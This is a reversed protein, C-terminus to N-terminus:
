PSCFVKQSPFLKFCIHGLPMFNNEDAYSTMAMGIQRLNSACAAQLSKLHANAVSPAVLAALIMVIALVVLLELLTFANRSASRLLSLTMRSHAHM